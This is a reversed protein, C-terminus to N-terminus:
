DFSVKTVVSFQSFILPIKCAVSGSVDLRETKCKREDKRKLRTVSQSYLSAMASNITFITETEPKLTENVDRAVVLAIQDRAARMVSQGAHGVSWAWMRDCM